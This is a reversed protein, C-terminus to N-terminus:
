KLVHWRGSRYMPHVVETRGSQYMQVDTGTPRRLKQTWHKAFLEECTVVFTM